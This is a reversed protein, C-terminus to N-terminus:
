QRQTRADALVEWFLLGVGSVIAIDAVNFVPWFVIDIFDVVYGIRTRDIFNGMAGALALSVGWKTIPGQDQLERRYYYVLFIALLGVAILLGRRQPFLGFAAGPNLVYTFYLVPKLLPISQGEEMTFQVWLKSSQDLLFILFSVVAYKLLKGRKNKEKQNRSYVM